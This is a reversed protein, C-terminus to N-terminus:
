APPDKRVIKGDWQLDEGRLEVSTRGRYTNIGPRFALRFPEGRRSRLDELWDAKGMAIVRLTTNEQRVMFTLHSGDRGVTRPKGAVQLGSAYFLPRPNGEGFPQLREIEKVLDFNLASLRAEGDLRLEPLAPERARLKEAVANIAERFAELNDMPLTLGAAGQHGGYELLLGACEAVATYLPFGEVSRASGRARNGETTFVFAPRWFKEALRSAVLGLVGQHWDPNTLVICNQGRLFANGAVIEEAEDCTSRQVSRRLRNQEKLHDALEEARAADYTTLLEAAADPHGMRGAANLLPAVRWGIDRSTPPDHRVRAVQLLARLGAQETIAITKLGYSVMVRNEDLLPVVDAVTGIAVLALAEVLLDRFEDSVREGDSLQQGLAWVLKFAVGVGALYEYGFRCDDLKPNLLHVGQPLGDRPEHHDTVLVDMGLERALQVERAASIGCDVTVILETGGEALEHVAETSLGYGEEIRHPIYLRADADLFRAARLMVAAACLGDADYDGFITIKRGSRIADLLFAAAQTLKPDDAPDRLDHLSPQLFRQASGEDRLDRNVLIRAVLDSVRLASSLRRVRDSNDPPIVWQKTMAGVTYCRCKRGSLRAQSNGRIPVCHGRPLEGEPKAALSGVLAFQVASLAERRLTTVRHPPAPVSNSPLSM